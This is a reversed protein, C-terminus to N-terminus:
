PNFMEGSLFNKRRFEKRMLQYIKYKKQELPRLKDTQSLSKLALYEYESLSKPDNAYKERIIKLQKDEYYRDRM